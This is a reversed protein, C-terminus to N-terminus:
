TWPGRDHAPDSHFGVVLGLDVLQQALDVAGDLLFAASAWSARGFGSGGAARRLAARRRWGARGRRSPRGCFGTLRSASRIVTSSMLLTCMKSPLTVRLWPVSGDAAVLQHDLLVGLTELVPDGGGVGAVQCAEADLAVALVLVDLALGLADLVVGLRSIVLNKLRAQTL